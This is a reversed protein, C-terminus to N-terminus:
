SYRHCQYFASFLKLINWYMDINNSADWHRDTSDRCQVANHTGDWPRGPWNPQSVWARGCGYFWAADRQCANCDRTRNSSLCAWLVDPFMGNRCSSCAWFISHSWAKLGSDCPLAMEFSINFCERWWKFFYCKGIISICSQVELPKFMSRPGVQVRAVHLGHGYWAQHWRDTMRGSKLGRLTAAHAM